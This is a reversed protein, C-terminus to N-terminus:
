KGGGLSDGALDIADFVDDGAAKAVPDLSVVGTSDGCAALGLALVPLAVLGPLRM